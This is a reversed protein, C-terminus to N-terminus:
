WRSLICGSQAVDPEREGPEAEVRCADGLTEAEPHVHGCSQTSAGGAENSHGECPFAGWPTPQVTCGEHGEVFAREYELVAEGVLMVKMGLRLPVLLDFELSDGIVLVDEDRAGEAEVIEKLVQEYHPRDAHVPRRLGPIHLGESGEAVVFKRANGRVRAALWTGLVPDEWEQLLQRIDEASSITVM